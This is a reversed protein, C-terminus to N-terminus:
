WFKVCTVDTSPANSSPHVFSVTASGILDVLSSSSASTTMITAGTGGHAIPATNIYDDLCAETVTVSRSLANSITTGPLFASSGIDFGNTTDATSGCNIATAHGADCAGSNTNLDAWGMTAKLGTHANL